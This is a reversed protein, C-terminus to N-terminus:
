RTWLLIVGCGSNTANYEVPIEAPSRYVEVAQLHLPNFSSIDLPPGPMDASYYLAGDLYVTMYCVDLLRGNCSARSGPPAGGLSAASYGWVCDSRVLWLRGFKRLQLDLTGRLPDHLQEMTLFRGFGERRRREFGEMKGSVFSDARETVVISDLRQAMVALTLTTDIQRRDEALSIVASLPTHGIARVRLRLRGSPVDSLRVQGTAGSRVTTDLEAVAVLAGEIPTGASSILRVRVDHLVVTTKTTRASAEALEGSADGLPRATGGDDIFGVVTDRQM